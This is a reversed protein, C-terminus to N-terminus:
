ISFEIKRIKKNFKLKIIKNLKIAYIYYRNNKKNLYINIKNEIYWNYLQNYLKKNIEDYILKKGNYVRKLLDIFVNEYRLEKTYCKSCLLSEKNKSWFKNNCNNNNCLVYYYNYESTKNNEEYGYLRYLYENYNENEKKYLNDHVELSYLDKKKNLIYDNYIYKEIDVLNLDSHWLLDSFYKNYIKEDKINGDLDVTQQDDICDICYGENMDDIYGNCQNFNPCKRKRLFTSIFYSLILVKKCLIISNSKKNVRKENNYLCKLCNDYM